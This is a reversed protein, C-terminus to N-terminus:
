LVIIVRTVNGWPSLITGITFALCCRRAIDLTAAFHFLELSCLLCLHVRLVPSQIYFDFDIRLLVYTQFGFQWLPVM